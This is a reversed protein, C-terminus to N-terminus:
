LASIRCVYKSYNGTARMDNYDVATFILSGDPTPAFGVTPKTGAISRNLLFDEIEQAPVLKVCTLQANADMDNCGLQSAVFSFNSFTYDTSAINTSVGSDAIFRTAIPDSRYAFNHIDVDAAGASQGWLAIKSPDGGFFAINDRVWELRHQYDTL